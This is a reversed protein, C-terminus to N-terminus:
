LNHAVIHRMITLSALMEAALHPYAEEITLVCGSSQAYEPEGPVKLSYSAIHRNSANTCTWEEGQATRWSWRYQQGDSGIFRRSKASGIPLSELFSSMPVQPGSGFAITGLSNNSGFTLTAVPDTGSTMNYIIYTAHTSGWSTCRLTFRLRDNIDVFHSGTLKGTKDELLYPMGYSTM